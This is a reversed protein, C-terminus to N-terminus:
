PQLSKSLAKIRNESKQRATHFGIEKPPQSETAPEIMERIADFVIKFQADYKKELANLRLSLEANSALWQRIKVFARMIEINVQVARPSRLVSSLMAIGQETFVFPRFRINRKSATVTQSRMSGSGTVIQSQNSTISKGTKLPNAESSMVIQSSNEQSAIVIQSRMLRDFEAESLRFMFDSPFRDRNRRIAQNLIRTEVRYLAALDSDLMVKQGRIMYILSEVQHVPIVKNAKKAMSMM